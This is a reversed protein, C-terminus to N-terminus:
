RKSITQPQGAANTGLFTGIAWAPVVRYNHSSCSITYRAHAPTPLMIVVALTAIFIRPMSSNTM